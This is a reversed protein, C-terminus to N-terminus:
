AMFALWTGIGVLVNAILLVLLYRRIQADVQELIQLTFRRKNREAAIALLKKKFLDGSALMFFVLFLVAVIQTAAMGLGKGGKIAVDVMSLQASQAVPPTAVVPNAKGTQAVNELETAAKKVENLPGPKVYKQLSRSLTKAADPAEQWLRQVDDAWAWAAVGFLGLISLVVIAAALVRFRVAKEVISVVPSLAYAIFLSVLLPIFFPAGFYLLFVVAIAALVVLSRNGRVM